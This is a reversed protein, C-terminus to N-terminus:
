QQNNIFFAYGPSFNVKIAFIAAAIIILLWLHRKYLLSRDSILATLLYPVTFVFCYLLFFAFFKLPRSDIGALIEPELRFHYNTFVLIAAFFFCFLFVTINLDRFYAKYYGFVENM